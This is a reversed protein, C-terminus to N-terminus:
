VSAVVTVGGVFITAQGTSPPLTVVCISHAWQGQCSSSWSSSAGNLSAGQVDASVWGYDYLWIYTGSSNTQSSVVAVLIGAERSEQEGTHALLSAADHVSTLAVASAGGLLAMTIALM